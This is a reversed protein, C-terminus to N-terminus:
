NVTISKTGFLGTSLRWGVSYNGRPMTSSVALLYDGGGLSIFQLGAPIAIMVYTVGAGITMGRFLGEASESVPAAPQAPRLKAKITALEQALAQILATAQSLKM